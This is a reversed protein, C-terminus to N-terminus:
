ACLSRMVVAVGEEEVEVEGEGEGEVVAVEREWGTVGEELM